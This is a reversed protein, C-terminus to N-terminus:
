PFKFKTYCGPYFIEYGGFSKKFRTFGLWSKNPFRPDFIGEFDFIKCGRKKAWLIGRYLLAYQALSARGEKNTFAYWYYAYDHSSRTFISGGIISGFNNHSALFLSYNQPFSQRLNLLQKYSPVFRNFSVSKKWAQRFIKIEEPSSYEKITLASGKRIARRTEKEFKLPKTLDLHLTKTPLYPSKSLKYQHNTIPSQHNTNIPEIITQFVGYKKELRKIVEFDIKKPRQIKLISGIIPIKKIFYNVGHIREVTWGSARLYDAYEPSQRIDIM